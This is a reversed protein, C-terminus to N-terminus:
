KVADTIDEFLWKLTNLREAKTNLELELEHKNKLDSLEEQFDLKIREIESLEEKIRCCSKYSYKDNLKYDLNGLQRAVNIAENLIEYNSKM